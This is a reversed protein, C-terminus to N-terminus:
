RGADRCRRGRGSERLNWALPSKAGEDLEFARQWRLLERLTGRAGRAAAPRSQALPAITDEHRPGPGYDVDFGTSGGPPVLARDLTRAINQEIVFQQPGLRVRRAHIAVGSQRSGM